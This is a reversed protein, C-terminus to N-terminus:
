SLYQEWRSLRDNFKAEIDDIKSAAGAVRETPTQPNSPAPGLLMTAILDELASLFFSREEPPLGDLRRLALDLSGDSLNSAIGSLTVEGTAQVLKFLTEVFRERNTSAMSALWSNLRKGRRYSEYTVASATKFDGGDVVWSFPSHQMIGPNTSRVVTPQESRGFLLMGVLSEEPVIREIAIGANRNKGTEDAEARANDSFSAGPTANRSVDGELSEANSRQPGCGCNTHRMHALAEQSFGPSDYVICGVIRSATDDDCNLVAYEALNGGKSHGTVLLPEALERAMRNLYDVAARQAPVSELFAMNFCEKWGFITNDTGRFAVVAGKAPMVFTTASFQKQETHSWDDAALCVRVESFRPSLACALLLNESSRPDHIPATLAVTNSEAALRTITIGRAERAAPVEEAIRLYALWSFVLSDIRNVPQQEFTQGFARVYDIINGM